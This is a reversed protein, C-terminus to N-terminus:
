AGVDGWATCPVEHLTADLRRRRPPARRETRHAVPTAAVSEAAHGRELWGIRLELEADAGAERALPHHRRQLAHRGALHVDAEREAGVQRLLVPEEVGARHRRDDVAGATVGGERQHRPVRRHERHLELHVEHRGPLALADHRAAAHYPRAPRERGAGAVHNATSSPSSFSTRVM